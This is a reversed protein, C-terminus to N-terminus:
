WGDYEDEEDRMLDLFNWVFVVWVGFVLGIDFWAATICIFILLNMWPSPKFVQEIAEKASTM